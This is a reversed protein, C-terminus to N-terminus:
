TNIKPPANPVASVTFIRFGPPCYSRGEAGTLQKVANDLIFLEARDKESRVPRGKIQVVKQAAAHLRYGPIQRCREKIVRNTENPFPFKVLIQYECLDGPFDFGEEVSPSVLVTGPPATRFRGLSDSLDGASENWIFRRVHASSQLVRKTRAYSVTHLIGKRDERSRIIEDSVALVARYDEDTSKWSLKRTPIHYVPANQPPFVSSWSRYDHGADSPLVLRLVFENLSASMLLVRPVGSYLSRTFQSIRIPTFTCHGRDDFQWVWNRGMKIIRACRNALDKGDDDNKDCKEYTEFAWVRWEDSPADHDGAAYMLGSRDWNHKGIESAYVKIEAYGSVQDEARHFEDGILLGVNAFARNEIGGSYLWYAYNSVVLDSMMAAEVAATYECGLTKALSCNEEAGRDCDGYNPCDYNSRGHLCVMGISKFDDMVQKELVKTAVLYVAKVDLLRAYAVATATKGSGTPLCAASLQATCESDLWDLAQRQPPRFSAFKPPLGLDAPSISEFISTSVV